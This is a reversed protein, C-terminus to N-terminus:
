QISSIIKKRWTIIRLYKKLLYKLIEKQKKQEERTM